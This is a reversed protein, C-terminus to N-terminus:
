SKRRHDLITHIRIINKDIEYIISQQKTIVAKRLNPHKLSAPYLEPFRVVLNEFRKINSLFNDVERQDWKSLLYTKISQVKKSSELSWSVHLENSM